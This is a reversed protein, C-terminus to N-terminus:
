RDFLSKGWSLRLVRGRARCVCEKNNKKFGEEQIRCSENAKNPCWVSGFPVCRWSSSIVEAETLFTRLTSTFPQHFSQKCQFSRIVLSWRAQIKNKPKNEGKQQNEKAQALYVDLAPNQPLGGSIFWPTTLSVILV